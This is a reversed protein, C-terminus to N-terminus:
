GDSVKKRILDSLRQKKGFKQYNKEFISCLTINEIIRSNTNSHTRRCRYIIPILSYFKSIYGQRTKRTNIKGPCNFAAKFGHNRLIVILIMELEFDDVSENSNYSIFLVQGKGRSRASSHWASACASHARPSSTRFVTGSIHYQVGGLHYRILPKLGLLAEFINELADSKEPIASTLNMLLSWQLIVNKFWNKSSM